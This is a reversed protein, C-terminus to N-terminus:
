MVPFGLGEEPTVMAQPGRRNAWSHSLAAWSKWAQEGKKCKMGLFARSLGQMILCWTEISGAASCSIISLGSGSLVAGHLLNENGCFRFPESFGAQLSGSKPLVNRLEWIWKEKVDNWFGVHLSLYIKYLIIASEPYGWYSVTNLIYYWQWINTNLCRM